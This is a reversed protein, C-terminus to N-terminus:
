IIGTPVKRVEKDIKKDSSNIGHRKINSIMEREIKELVAMDIFHKKNVYNIKKEKVIREVQKLLESDIKVVADRAM